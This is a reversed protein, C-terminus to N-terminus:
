TNQLNISISNLNQIQRWIVEIESATITWVIGTVWEIEHTFMKKNKIGYKQFPDYYKFQDYRWSPFQELLGVGPLNFDFVELYNIQIELDAWPKSIQLEIRNNKTGIGSIIIDKLDGYHPSKSYYAGDWVPNEIISIVSEPFKFRYNEVYKQYLAVATGADAELQESLKLTM